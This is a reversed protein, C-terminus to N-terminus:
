SLTFGGDVVVSAGTMWAADPSALFAVAGAVDEPQGVRGLPHKAVFDPLLDDFDPRDVYSIATHVLGPCVANVRVKPAYDVAMSRTLGLVGAKSAQYAATGPFSVLALTSSINVVAGGRQQLHPLAAKSVLYVGRLNVALVRDWEAAATATVPKDRRIIGANNVLITLRGFLRVTESVMRQADAERSVDGTVPEAEGGSGRILGATEEVPTPRRGAVVVRAGESALRRAVARGIGSGGGTVLAVDGALRKM